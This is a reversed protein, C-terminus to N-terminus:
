QEKGAQEMAALHGIIKAAAARQANRKSSAEGEASFKDGVDVRVRYIRAHDPGSISVEEYTPLIGWRAVAMEQLLTKPGVGFTTPDEV